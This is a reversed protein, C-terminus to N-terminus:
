AHKRTRLDVWREPDPEYLTIIKILSRSPCSCHLHLPRGANTYGLVLCSPGYKDDPYYEIVESNNAVAEEVEAMSISRLISQDVAHTSLEYQRRLVKSRIEELLGMMEKYETVGESDLIRVLGANVPPPAPRRGARHVGQEITERGRLSVLVDM